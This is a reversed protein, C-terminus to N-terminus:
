QPAELMEFSTPSEYGEIDAKVETHGRKELHHITKFILDKHREKEEEKVM